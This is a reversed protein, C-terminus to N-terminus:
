CTTGGSTSTRSADFQTSLTTTRTSCTQLHLPHSPSDARLVLPRGGRRPVRRRATRPDRHLSESETLRAMVLKDFYYEQPMRVTDALTQFVLVFVQAAAANRREARAQPRGSCASRARVMYLLTNVATSNVFEVFQDFATWFPGKDEEEEEEEEEKKEEQEEAEEKEDDKGDPTSAYEDGDEKMQQRKKAIANMAAITTTPAM